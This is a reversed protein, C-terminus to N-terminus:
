AVRTIIDVERLASDAHVEINPNKGMTIADGLTFESYPITRIHFTPIDDGPKHTTIRIM